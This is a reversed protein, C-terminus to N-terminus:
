RAEECRARYRRLMVGLGDAEPEERLRARVLGVRQDAAVALVAAAFSYPAEACGLEDCATIEAAIARAEAAIAAEMQQDCQGGPAPFQHLEDSVHMRLHILRAAAAAQDLSSSIVVTGDPRVSGRDLGGFCIAPGAGLGQGAGTGRAADLVAQARREDAVTGPPCEFNPTGCALDAAILLAALSRGDM